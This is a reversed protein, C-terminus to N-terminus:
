AEPLHAFTIDEVGMRTSDASVLWMASVSIVRSLNRQQYVKFM